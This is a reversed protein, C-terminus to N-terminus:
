SHTKRNQERFWEQQWRALRFRDLTYATLCYALALLGAAGLWLGLASMVAEIVVAAGTLPPQSPNGNEDVWAPLRDGKVAGQDAVIKGTKRTGDALTWTADTPEGSGAVGSRTNAKLAPGDALLTAVVQTRTRLQEASQLQQRVYTESGFSAAFPLVALALVVVFALLGGQVRDSPRAVSGRRPLVTHWMRAIRNSSPNM